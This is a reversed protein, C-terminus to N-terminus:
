GDISVSYEKARRLWIEKESQSKYDEARVGIGLLDWCVAKGSWLTEFIISYYEPNIESMARISGWEAGKRFYKRATSEDGAYQYTMGCVWASHPDNGNYGKRAWERAIFLNNTNSSNDDLIINALLGCAQPHNDEALRRLEAEAKVKAMSDICTYYGKALYYLAMINGHDKAKSIWKYGESRNDGYISMAGLQYAADLHGKEAAIRFYRKAEHPHQAGGGKILNICGLKYASEAYGQDAAKKYWKEAVALTDVIKYTKGEDTNSMYGWRYIDGMFDQAKPNGDEAYHRVVDIDEAEIAENLPREYAPDDKQKGAWIVFLVLVLIAVLGITWGLIIKRSKRGTCKQIVREVNVSTCSQKDGGNGPKYFSEKGDKGPSVPPVPPVNGHGGGSGAVVTREDEMVTKEDEGDMPEGDLLGLFGAIAQPRDAIKIEMAAAVAMRVTGDVNAPLPKLEEGGALSVAPPPTIGTLLKYLTAGLAYIDTAPTFKRVDNGMQEIPAYGPTKGMLTSNNEGSDGDYQKSAGFDILVAHGNKDVMINAPKVDLHLRNHDHVYQLAKAVQRIFGVARAESM